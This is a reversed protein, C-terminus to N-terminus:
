DSPKGSPRRLYSVGCIVALIAASALADTRIDNRSLGLVDHALTGLLLATLGAALLACITAITRETM